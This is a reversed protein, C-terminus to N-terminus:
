AISSNLTEDLIKRRLLSFTKEHTKVCRLCKLNSVSSDPIMYSWTQKKPSLTGKPYLPVLADMAAAPCPVRRFIGLLYQITSSVPILCPWIPSNVIMEEPTEGRREIITM